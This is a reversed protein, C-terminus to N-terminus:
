RGWGPSCPGAQCRRSSRLPAVPAQGSLVSSEAFGVPRSSRPSVAGLGARAGPGLPGERASTVVEGRTEGSSGQPDAQPESRGAALSPEGCGRGGRGREIERGFCLAVHWFSLPRPAAFNCNAFFHRSRRMGAGSPPGLHSTPSAGGRAPM